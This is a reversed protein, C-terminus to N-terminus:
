LSPIKPFKQSNRPIELNKSGSNNHNPIGSFFNRPIGFAMKCPITAFLYMYFIITLLSWCLTECGQKHLVVNSQFIVITLQIIKFSQKVKTSQKNMKMPWPGNECRNSANNIGSALGSAFQFTFTSCSRTNNGTMQLKVREALEDFVM